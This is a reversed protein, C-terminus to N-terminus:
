ARLKCPGVRRSLHTLEPGGSFGHIKLLRLAGDLERVSANQEITEVLVNVREDALARELLDDYNTTVIATFRGAAALRAIARHTPTPEHPCQFLRQLVDGLEGAGMAAIFADVVVSFEGVPLSVDATARLSSLIQEMSPYGAAVSLGAGVWLVPQQKVISELEHTMVLLTGAM